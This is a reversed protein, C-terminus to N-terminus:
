KWKEAWKVLDFVDAKETATSVYWPASVIIHGHRFLWRRLDDLRDDDGDLVPRTPHGILKWPLDLTNWQLKLFEGIEYLHEWPPHELLQHLTAKATALGIPEGFFTGSFHVGNALEQMVSSKGALASIPYGNGLTKGFCYLDVKGQLDYYEAAGGPGYRFGTVVEDLIFLAGREHTMDALTNLWVRGADQGKDDPPCEVIVAAIEKAHWSLAGTRSSFDGLWELPVFAEREAELTGRRMDMPLAGRANAKPPTAYASATGHYGYCLIKDRGTVARALKVAAACTDSGNCMFRVSEVDPYFQTLMDAVIPENQSAISSIPGNNYVADCIADRWWEPRYGFLAGSLGSEWDIYWRGDTLRVKNDRSRAAHLGTLMREPNRSTTSAGNTIEAM